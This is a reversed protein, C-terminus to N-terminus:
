EAELAEVFAGINKMDEDSLTAAQSWMLASQAGRTEGNKYQALKTYIAEGTQGALAPGVGGEGRSGHCAICGAYAKEGLEAPSANAKAEAQAAAIALLGGTEQEWSTYCEGTCGHVSDKGFKNADMAWLPFGIAFCAFLFIFVNDRSV